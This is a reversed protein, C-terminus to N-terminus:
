MLKGIMSGEERRVAPNLMSPRGDGRWCLEGAQKYPSDGWCRNGGFCVLVEAVGTHTTNKPREDRLRSSTLDLM